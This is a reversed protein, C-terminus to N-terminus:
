QAIHFLQKGYKGLITGIAGSFLFKDISGIQDPKLWICDDPLIFALIRCIFLAFVGISAIYIAFIVVNHLHKQKSENQKAFFEEEKKAKKDTTNNEAQINDLTLM